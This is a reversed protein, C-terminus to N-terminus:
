KGEMIQCVLSGLSEAEFPKTGCTCCEYLVIGLAWMDAKENYSAGECLEPSLYYPTGVLSSAMYTMSGMM